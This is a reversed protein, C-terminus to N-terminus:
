FNIKSPLKLFQKSITQSIWGLSTQADQSLQSIYQKHPLHLFYLSQMLNTQNCDLTICNKSMLIKIVKLM